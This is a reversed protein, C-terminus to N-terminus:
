KGEGKKSKRKQATRRNYSTNTDAILTNIRSIFTTLEPSPHVISYAWIYTTHRDFLRILETRVKASRGQQILPRKQTRQLELEKIRRNNSALLDVESRLSLQDVYQSNPAKELDMLVADILAVLQRQPMRHIKVHPVLQLSLKRAAEGKEGSPLRSMNQVMERLYVLLRRQETLLTKIQSTEVCAKGETMVDVFEQSLADFEALAEASVHLVESGVAQMYESTKSMLYSLEAHNLKSFKIYNLKVFEEM